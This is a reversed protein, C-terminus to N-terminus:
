SFRENKLKQNLLVENPLSNKYQLNKNLNIFAKLTNLYECILKLELM